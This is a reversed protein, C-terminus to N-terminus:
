SYINRTYDTVTNEIPATAGDALSAHGVDYGGAAERIAKDNKLRGIL